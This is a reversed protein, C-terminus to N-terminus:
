FSKKIKKVCALEQEFDMVLREKSILSPPGIPMDPIVHYHLHKISKGVSPGDRVLISVNKHGLRHLIKVALQIMSDIELVEKSNLKLFSIVHRRPIVLLHNSVYPAKSVALYALDKEQIMLENKEFCFPCKKLTKLFDKYKM